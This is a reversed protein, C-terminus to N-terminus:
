FPPPGPDVPWWPHAYTWECQRKFREWREAARRASEPNPPHILTLMHAGLRRRGKRNEEDIDRCRALWQEHTLSAWQQFPNDEYVDLLCECRTRKEEWRTIEAWAALFVAAVAVVVMLKRVTFQVRHLKM